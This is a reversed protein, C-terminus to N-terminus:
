GYRISTGASVNGGVSSAKVSTGASVNGGVNDCRVSTGASVSGNVEGCVVSQSSKLQNIVGQEVKITIDNSLDVSVLKDNVTLQGNVFSINCDGDVSIPHGNINIINM